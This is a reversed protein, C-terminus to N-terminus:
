RGRVLTAPVARAGRDAGSRRLPASARRPHARRDRRALAPGARPPGRHARLRAADAAVLEHIGMLELMGASQRGRMFRGPLTVLPLGCALADLSTNGGSWRLTDLMVDCAANIRLFDDHGCQPLACTREAAVGAQELRRRFAATLAPDRGEFWCSARRRCPAGPGCRVARRQGSPDQLAIAPVAPAARRRAPRAGRANASAPVAPAAYRTGIGPLTVLRESYHDQADPPEMAASSLFVDVNPLGTTVPHGWGACQLPALRLSALAFPVTGMGLEPYVLVDLADARIRPALQSPRWWPLHRFHEVDRALRQALADVGPLLHYVFVEFDSARCTACGTSSTAASRRM